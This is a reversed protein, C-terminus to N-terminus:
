QKFYKVGSEIISLENEDIGVSCRGVRALVRGCPSTLSEVAFTSGTPNCPSEMTAFGKYDVYQTAIQGKEILSNLVDEGFKFLGKSSITYVHYKEGLEALYLWPSLVSAVRVNSTTCVVKDLNNNNLTVSEDDRKRLKGTILGLRCLADASEGTGYILGDKTKIYEEIKEFVENQRIFSCIEDAVGVGDAFALICSNDLLEIFTDSNQEGNDLRAVVPDAGALKFARVLDFYNATSKFVPILVNPRNFKTESTLSKDTKYRVNNILGRSSATTKFVSELPATYSQTVGFSNLSRDKTFDFRGDTDTSGLYVPSFEIFPATENCMVIIDGYSNEFLMNSAKDFDFGMGNGICSKIVSAQAGGDEVVTASIINGSEVNESICDFLRSAYDFDIMGYEDRKHSFKYVRGVKNFVNSITKNAKTSCIAHATFSNSDGVIVSNEGTDVGLGLRASFAGLLASFAQDEFNENHVESVCISISQRRAGTAVLKAVSSVVANIAGIYPSEKFLSPYMSKAYITVNETGIVPFAYVSSIAPTLGYKGELPTFRNLGGQTFDFQETLGKQSCVNYDSLTSNCASAFDEKELYVSALANSKSWRTSKKEILSIDLTKKVNYGELVEVPICIDDCEVVGLENVQGISMVSLSYNYLAKKLEEEDRPRAIIIFGDSQPNDTKFSKALRYTNYVFDEKKSYKADVILRVSKREMSFAILKRLTYTKDEDIPVFLIIDDQKPYHKAVCGAQAYGCAFVTELGNQNFKADFCDYKTTAVGTKLSFDVIIKPNEKEPDAYEGVVDMFFPTYRSSLIDCLADFALDDVNDCNGARLTYAFKGDESKGEGFNVKQAISSFARGTRDPQKNRYITADALDDLCPYVGFKEKQQECLRLYRAYSEGIHPNSSDINVKDFTSLTTKNKFERIRQFLSIEGLAIDKKEDRSYQQLHKLEGISLSFSNKEAFIGLEKESFSSFDKVIKETRNEVM